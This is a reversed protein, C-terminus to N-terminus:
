GRHGSSSQIAAGHRLSRRQAALIRGLPLGGTLLYAAVMLATEKYRFNM